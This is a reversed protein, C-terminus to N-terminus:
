EDLVDGNPKYKHTLMKIVNVVYDNNKLCETCRKFSNNPWYQYQNLTALIETELLHAQYLTTPLEIWTSVEFQKMGSVSFRQKISRTTIGVKIFNDSNDQIHVVYLIAPDNHVQPNNKFYTESYGGRGPPRREQWCQPCGQKSDVHCTARQLFLGHKPCVIEVKCTNSQYDVKSYDYTDGHVSKAKQIFQETTNRRKLGADHIGCLKCSQGKHLYGKPTITFEGHEPCILIVPTHTNKYQCKSYDFRDGYMAKSETIFSQTTKRKRGSCSPCGSRKTLHDNPRVEFDGHTPCTVIVKTRTNIYQTKNYKLTPHLQQAEAVFQETTKRISDYAM